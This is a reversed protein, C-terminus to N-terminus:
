VTYFGFHHLDPYFNYAHGTCFYNIYNEHLHVIIISYHRVRVKFTGDVYWIESTLLLKLNQNLMTFNYMRSCTKEHFVIQLCPWPSNESQYFHVKTFSTACYNFQCKKTTYIVRKEHLFLLTCDAFNLLM